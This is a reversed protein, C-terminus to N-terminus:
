REAPRPRALQRSAKSAQHRGSTGVPASTEAPHADLMRWAHEYGDRMYDLWRRRDVFETYLGAGQVRGYPVPELTHVETAARLEALARRAADVHGMLRTQGSLRVVSLAGERWEFDEDAEFGSRYFGNVVVALDCRPQAVFPRSPLIEVIGGDLYSQGQYPVPEFALPLAVAMRVARAASLTPDDESSIYRLANREISWAPFWVPTPLEGLTLDGLIRRFTEEIAEGRMLGAWGRGLRLPAVALGGWHPDLYEEPRLALLQRALDEPEMGAALPIGFMASGSCLGYGVPAIDAEQLARVVGVVAALAGSGGTAVVGVRRDHWAHRGGTRGLPFMEDPPEPRAEFPLPVMARRMQDLISADERLVRWWMGARVPHRLYQGVRALDTLYDLTVVAM